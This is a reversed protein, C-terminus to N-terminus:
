VGYIGDLIQRALQLKSARPFLQPSSPKAREFFQVENDASEFGIDERSVDNLILFDVNKRELKERAHLELNDTEAAFGVLISDAKLQFEKKMQGLEALIDPSQVMDFSATAAVKKIKSDQTTAPRYDSVAAACIILDADPAEKMVAWHMDLASVVDRRSLREDVPVPENTPGLVLQVEAGALLAARALAIGMKGSSRNTFYRVPDLYERTPGATILVKKGVLKKSTKTAEEVATFLVDAEVMRGQGLDGCALAGTAPGIIHVGRGALIALNEQTAADLYMQTNMAPAVLLQGQFALATTSLLDDARGQALKAIVNATAPAILFVDAEQALSIHNIPAAPDDFLDQAVPNNTLSRFTAAGVFESAHRTMVTKVEYGARVLQRALDCVKYAAIGGSVGLLVRQM